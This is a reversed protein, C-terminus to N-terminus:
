WVILHPLGYETKVRTQTSANRSIFRDKHANYYVDKTTTSVRSTRETFAYDYRDAKCRYWDRQYVSPKTATKRVIFETKNYSPTYYGGNDTYFRVGVPTVYGNFINETDTVTYSKPGYASSVVVNTYM